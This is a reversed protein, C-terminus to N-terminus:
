NARSMNLLEAQTVFPTDMKRNLAERSVYETKMNSGEYGYPMSMDANSKFLYKNHFPRNSDFSSVGVYTQACMNNTNIISTGNNTLFRRYDFNSVVGNERMLENNDKEATNWKTFNRTDSMLPPQSMHINNTGSKYCTGWSM